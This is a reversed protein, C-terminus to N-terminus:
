LDHGGGNRPRTRGRKGLIARGRLQVVWRGCRQVLLGRRDPMAAMAVIPQALHIAGTSGYFQADGYSFIGGDSAVLWYGGGDATAAMGVIPKNLHISGTSGYFQADGYSFIGGDSAVLWYGGGGPTAAMGVIPKNLHISGTSGYFQADGYSFIGGDSAVLWYGGADLTGAMGVIPKNLHIGGTSGYFQADGYNFIGGDTAVLWYGGDDGTAAMGVIPKNLKLSGADGFYAADGMHAVQGRADVQYYGTSGTGSLSVSVTTNELGKIAMTASRDGLTGPFFSVDMTCAAGPNLVVTSVGDGPCGSSPTVVYDDAGPGSFTLDDTSLDISDTSTSANTLVFSGATFTGLTTAGFSLSGPAATLTPSGTGSLSVVTITSDSATITMTASRDGVASPHFYVDLPCSSDPIVTITGASICGNAMVLSYDGAGAGSVSVGTTLDITVTSSTGNNLSFERIDEINPAGPGANAGVPVAGFSLSDPDASLKPSSAGAGSGLAGGMAVLVLVTILAGLGVTTWQRVRM